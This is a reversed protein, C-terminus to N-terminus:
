LRQTLGDFFHGISALAADADPLLGHFQHWICPARDYMEVVVSASAALCLADDARIEGRAVQVLTPPPEEHRVAALEVVLRDGASHGAILSCRRETADAPTM